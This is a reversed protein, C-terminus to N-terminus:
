GGGAPSAPTASPGTAPPASATRYALFAQAWESNYGELELTSVYKQDTIIGTKRFDNLQAESPNKARAVKFARIRHLAKALEGPTAGVTALQAIASQENIIGAGYEDIIFGIERKRELLAENTKELAIEANAGEITYDHALLIQYYDQESISGDLFERKAVSLSAAHNKAAKAATAAKGPRTAYTILLQVDEDTYGHKKLQRAATPVDILHQNLMTSITRFQILPRQAEVLTTQLALPVFDASMVAQLSQLSVQGRFYLAIWQSVAGLNWHSYWRDKTTDVSLGENRAGESAYEPVPVAGQLGLQQLADFSAAGDTAENLNSPRFVLDILAKRQTDDYNQAKLITDYGTTDLEGRRVLEAAAGSSQTLFQPVALAKLADQQGATWGQASLATVFDATQIIGRYLAEMLQSPALQHTALDKLLKFRPENLDGKAAETVADAYSIFGRLVGEVLSSAPLLEIPCGANLRQTAEERFKGWAPILAALALIVNGVVAEFWHWFSTPPSVMKWDKEFTAKLDPTACTTTLYDSIRVTATSPFSSILGALAAALSSFDKHLTEGTGYGTNAEVFGPYWVKYDNWINVLTTDTTNGAGTIAGGISTLAAVSAHIESQIAILVATSPSVAGTVAAVIAPIVAGVAKGIEGALGGIQQSIIQIIQGLSISVPNVANFIDQGITNGIGGLTSGIGTELNQIVGSIGNFATNVGGTILGVSNSLTSAVDNATQAAISGATSAAANIGASVANAVNQVANSASNDAVNVYSNATVYVPAGLGGEASASSSSSSTSGFNAPAGIPFNGFIQPGVIPSPICNSPGAGPLISAAGPACYFVGSGPPPNQVPPPSPPPTPPPTPPPETPHPIAITVPTWGPPPIPVTVTIPSNTSGDPYRCAYGTVGGAPDLIAVPTSGPPCFLTGIDGPYPGFGGM